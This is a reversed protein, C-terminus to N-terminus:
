SCITPRSTPAYGSRILYNRCNMIARNLELPTPHSPLAGHSIGAMNLVRDAFKGVSFVWRFGAYEHLIHAASLQMEYPAISEHELEAHIYDQIGIERLWSKLVSSNNGGFVIPFNRKELLNLM